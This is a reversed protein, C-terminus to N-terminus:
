NAPTAHTLYWVNNVLNEIEGAGVLVDAISLNILLYYTRKLTSRQKWFVAIAIANGLFVALMEIALIVAWALRPKDTAMQWSFTTHKNLLVYMFNM